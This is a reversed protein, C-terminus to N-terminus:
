RVQPVNALTTFYQMLSTHLVNKIKSLFYSLNKKLYMGDSDDSDLFINM